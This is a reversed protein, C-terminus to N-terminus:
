NFERGRQRTTVVSIAVFMEVTREFIGGASQLGENLPTSILLLREGRM